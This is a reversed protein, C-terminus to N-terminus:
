EVRALYARRALTERNPMVGDVPLVKVSNDVSSLKIYGIAGPTKAVYDRVDADSQRTVPRLAATIKELFEKNRDLRLVRAYFAGRVDSSAERNVLFIHQGNPWALQKGMFIRRLTLSRINSVPTDKHVVVAIANSGASQATSTLMGTPEPGAKSGAGGGATIEEQDKDEDLKPADTTIAAPPTGAVIEDSDGDTIASEVQVKSEVRAPTTRQQQSATDAEAPRNGAAVAALVSPDVGSAALKKRESDSLQFDVGRTRIINAFEDPAIGGIEVAKLFRDRTIRQTPQASLTLGLALLVVVAHIHTM